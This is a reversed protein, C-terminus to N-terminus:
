YRSVLFFQATAFLIMTVAILGCIILHRRKHMMVIAVFERLFANPLFYFATKAGIGDANLNAMKAFIGARFLHFNNTTFIAHFDNGGFTKEMIEKSFKMNELTNKSNTEVLIDEEPIGKELAYNKMAISEAIHEDDGKGGSMLIKPPNLTAKSQAKYFQIAKEIRRGLLPPVTKGDILGSGLVIIFDQNYKPQNFQYIVSITLFNYFVISFYIISLPLIGFLLSAWEPLIRTSYHNFILFATLGIALLLTLLNALSHGEKRMVVIANWYLFAILAYLGILILLLLVVGTIGAMVMLLPNTTRVLLFGLYTMGIVLFLNFLLGNILRRKEKFYYFLFLLLLASPILFYYSHLQTELYIVYVIFCLSFWLLEFFKWDQNVKHQRWKPMVFAGILYVMAIIISFYNGM